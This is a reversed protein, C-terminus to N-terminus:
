GQRGERCAHGRDPDPTPVRRPHQRHLEAVAAVEERRARGVPGHHDPRHPAELVQLGEVGGGGAVADGETRGRGGGERARESARERARGRRGDVWGKERGGSGSREGPM